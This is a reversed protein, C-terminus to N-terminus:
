HSDIQIEASWNGSNQLQRIMGDAEFSLAEWHQFDHGKIKDKKSELRDGMWMYTDANRGPLIAIHTQQARVISDRRGEGPTTWPSALNKPDVGRININGHYTYPGLARVATYVRVGSGNKCFACTEDFLLYYINKRKFLSPSECNGAIPGTDEGASSLYDSTLKEITIQHHPIPEAQVSLSSRDNGYSYTIYASGDDDVFLGLDGLTKYKMPVDPNHITFPGQPRNSTAVGFRADANFWLVYSKTSRNFIVYPRFYVRPPADKLIDGGFTWNMLDPSTYVVYRNTTDWGDTKKYRTGYLYYQGEFFYLSGDHADIIQGNRDFRPRMNDINAIKFQGPINRYPLAPEGIFLMLGLFILFAHHSRLYQM